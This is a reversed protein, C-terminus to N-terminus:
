GQRCKVVETSTWAVDSLLLRQFRALPFASVLVLRGLFSTFLGRLDGPVVHDLAIIGLVQSVWM